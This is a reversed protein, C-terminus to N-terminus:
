REQIATLSQAPTLESPTPLSRHRLMVHQSALSHVSLRHDRAVAPLVSLLKHGGSVRSERDSACLTANIGKREPAPLKATTLPVSTHLVVSLPLNTIGSNSTMAAGTITCMAFSWPTEPRLPILVHQCASTQTPRSLDTARNKLRSRRTDALQGHLPRCSETGVNEPGKTADTKLGAKEQEGREM